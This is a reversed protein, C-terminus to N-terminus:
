FCATIKANTSIRAKYAKPDSKQIRQAFSKAAACDGRAAASECQKVLEDITPVRDEVRGSSEALYSRM